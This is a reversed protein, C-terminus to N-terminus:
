SAGKGARSRTEEAAPRSEPQIEGLGADVNASYWFAQPTVRLLRPRVALKVERGEVEVSESVSAPFDLTPVIKTPLKIDFGKTLVGRLLAVVKDSSLFQMGIGCKDLKDLASMTTRVKRWTAESPSVAIRITQVPFEPRLVIRDGQAAILFDGSVTYERPVADGEVDLKTQFDGCAVSAVGKADWAFAVTASGHGSEAQVPITVRLRNEGAVSVQPPKARLVAQVRHVTVHVKWNGATVRKGFLVKVKVQEGEEVEEELPLDLEVRSLYRTTAERVLADILEPKLGVAVDGSDTVVAWLLTDPKTVVILSDLLTDYRAELSKM